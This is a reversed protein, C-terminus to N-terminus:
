LTALAARVAAWAESTPDLHSFHDGPVVTLTSDDGAKEAAAVYTESLTIPVSDDDRDHVLVTRVGSPLLDMPDAQRYRDPFHSPSGDVLAQPAGSGLNQEAAITLAVVGAQPIALAPPRADPNHGPADPALNHRSALWATLHGGASHGVVAVRAADIRHAFHGDYLHDYAAAVDTLTAPWPIASSQYDINWCLYGRSALDLAVKDELHRDYQRRWFGGHILVVTPAIGDGQPVFWEGVQLKLTGYSEVLRIVDNPNTAM